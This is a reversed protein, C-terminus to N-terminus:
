KNYNLLQRATIMAIGSKKAMIIEARICDVTFSEVYPNKRDSDHAILVGGGAKRTQEVVQRIDNTRIHEAYMKAPDRDGSNITWFVIPVKKILLFLLSILNLRGYPPRFPYIGHEKNLASNIAKWDKVIDSLCMYPSNKWHHLHNFGHSCVEHGQDYLQKIINERGAICSGSIFFTAKVNYEALMKLITPTNNSGPGDDITLVLAKSKVARQKLM